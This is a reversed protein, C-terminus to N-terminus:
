FLMTKTKSTNLTLKNSDLWNQARRLDETLVQQIESTDKSAYLIATDDAYLVVKTKTLLLANPLIM